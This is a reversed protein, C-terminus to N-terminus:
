EKYVGLRVRMEEYEREKQRDLERAERPHKKRWIEEQTQQYREYKLKSDEQRKENLERHFSSGELLRGVRGSDRDQKRLKKQNKRREKQEELTLKKHRM